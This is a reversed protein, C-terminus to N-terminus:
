PPEASRRAVLTAIRVSVQEPRALECQWIVLTAFGLRRLAALSRRDRRRNAVLKQTWFARNRKPLSAKICNPHGHWFCGHVFIAWNRLRNALDPSGPLDRNKTRYRVGLANLLRRVSLEPATGSQRIRGMRASTKRDVNSGSPRPPVRTM